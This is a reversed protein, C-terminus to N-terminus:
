YRNRKRKCLNVSYLEKSDIKNKDKVEQPNVKNELNDISASKSEELEKEEEVINNKNIDAIFLDTNEEGEWKRITVGDGTTYMKDVGINALIEIKDLVLSNSDEETSPKKTEM